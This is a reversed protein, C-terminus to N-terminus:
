EPPPEGNEARVIESLEFKFRALDSMSMARLESLPQYGYRACYAFDRM